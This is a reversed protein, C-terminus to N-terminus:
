EGERESCIDTISQFALECVHDESEGEHYDDQAMEWVDILENRLDPYINIMEKLHAKLTDFDM